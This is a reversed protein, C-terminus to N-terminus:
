SPTFFPDALRRSRQALAIAVLSAGAVLFSLGLVHYFITVLEQTPGFVAVLLMTFPAGILLLLGLALDTGGRVMVWAWNAAPTDRSLIAVDIAAIGRLLLWATILQTIPFLGTWASKVLVAGVILTAAGSAFTLRGIWSNRGRWALALETLGGVVLLWGVVPTIPHAEVFPLAIALAGTLLKTIGCVITWQWPAVHFARRFEAFSHPALM